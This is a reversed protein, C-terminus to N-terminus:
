GPFITFRYIELREEKSVPMWICKCIQDYSDSAIYYCIFSAYFM